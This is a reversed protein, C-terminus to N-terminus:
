NAFTCFIFLELQLKRYCVMYCSETVSVYILIVINFYQINEELWM